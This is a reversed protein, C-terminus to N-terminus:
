NLNAQYNAYNAQEETSRYGSVARTQIGQAAADKQFQEMSQRFEPKLGMMDASAAHPMDYADGTKNPIFGMAWRASAGQTAGGAAFPNVPPMPVNGSTKFLGPYDSMTGYPSPALTGFANPSSAPAGGTAAGGLGSSGLKKLGAVLDSNASLNASVHASTLGYPVSALSSEYTGAGTAASIQGSTAGGWAGGSTSPSPVGAKMAKALTDIPSVAAAAPSAGNM